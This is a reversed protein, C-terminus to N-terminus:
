IVGLSSPWAPDLHTLGSATPFSFVGDRMPQLAHNSHSGTSNALQSLKLVVMVLSAWFLVRFVGRFGRNQKWICAIGVAAGLPLLVGGQVVGFAYAANGPVRAVAGQYVWISNTIFLLAFLACYVATPVSRRKPPLLPPPIPPLPPPTTM